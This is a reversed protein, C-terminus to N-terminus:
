RFIIEKIVEVGVNKNLSNKIEDRSLFLDHRLVSSSLSVYLIRNKINLDTTYKLINEGLIKPWADILRKENLQKDLHNAKLVQGIVDRLLETNKKRM